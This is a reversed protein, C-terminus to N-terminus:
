EWGVWIVGEAECARACGVQGEVPWELYHYDLTAWSLDGTIEQGTEWLCGDSWEFFTSARLEIACGRTEGYFEVHDFDFRVTGGSICPFTLRHQSGEFPADVWCGGRHIDGVTLTVECMLGECGEDIENDCDNDRCDCLEPDDDGLTCGDCTMVDDECHDSDPGDCPLGLDFGEDVEGDCDDDLGNCLEDVPLNGMCPGWRGRVCEEMGPLCSPDNSSCPRTDGDVCEGIDTKAGCGCLVALLPLVLWWLLIGNM